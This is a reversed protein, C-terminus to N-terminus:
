FRFHVGSYIGITFPNFSGATNNFTNLQYKFVPEVNLKIKKTVKYNLGFGLNTSFNVSNLNNAEGLDTFQGNSVISVGNNVLFLSSFGGIVNIGFRKDLLSYNLELPVEIYGMQQEIEGERTPNKGTLDNAQLTPSFSEQPGVKSEIVIGAASPEFSINSFSTANNLGVTSRFLIDNTQYAYDVKNVGTRIQLKKGMKYGVALGYSLNVDGSRSNAALSPSIASGEGFADFYVPAVTPGVSWRDVDEKSEVLLEEQEKIVDFLSKKEKEKTPSDISDQANEVAVLAKEITYDLKKEVEIDDNSNEVVVTEKSDTIIREELSKNESLLDAKDKSVLPMNNKANVVSSNKEQTSETSLKNKSAYKTPKAEQHVLSPETEKTITSNPPNLEKNESDKTATITNEQSKEIENKLITKTSNVPTETKTDTVDPIIETEFSPIGVWLALALGAAVGGIKWWLPIVRKKKKRLELSAEVRQWVRPDPVQSLDGLQEQFLKDLDKKAM